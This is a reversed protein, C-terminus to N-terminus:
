SQRITAVQFLRCVYNFQADVKSNTNRHMDIEKILSRKPRLQSKMNKTPLSSNVRRNYRKMLTRRRRRSQPTMGLVFAISKYFWDLISLKSKRRTM